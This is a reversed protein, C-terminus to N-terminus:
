YMLVKYGAQEFHHDGTLASQLGQENMVVFSICDTLSWNKDMRRSFLEVGKNFLELSPPIITVNPNSRLADMLRIFTRRQAPESLADGVETLIWATTVSRANHTQSFEVAQKHRDDDRNVLALYYFTDAFYIKM